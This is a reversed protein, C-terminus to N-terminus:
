DFNSVVDRDVISVNGASPIIENTLSKFTTTKGAGNVGLLTFCEGFSLGFSAGDM